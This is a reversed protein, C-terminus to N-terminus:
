VGHNRLVYKPASKRWYRDIGNKFYVVALWRVNVDLSLNSFITQLVSYFGPQTEWSKLQQEAPKLVATNQSAARTLTDLVTAVVSSDM